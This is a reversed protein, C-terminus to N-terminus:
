RVVINVLKDPVVIVKVMQKGAVFPQIKPDALALKELEERPTNFPVNIRGRVKGNVQLV